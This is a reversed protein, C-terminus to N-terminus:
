AAAGRRRKRRENDTLGGFIGFPVHTKEAYALCEAAVSCRACIAKAAAAKAAVIHPAGKVPFFVNTDVSKCAADDMWTESAVDFTPVRDYGGRHKTAARGRNANHCDRCENRTRDRTTRHPHYQDIPKTEGCLRCTKEGDSTM